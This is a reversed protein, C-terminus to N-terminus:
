PVLELKRLAPHALQDLVQRGGVVEVEHRLHVRGRGRWLIPRVCVHM